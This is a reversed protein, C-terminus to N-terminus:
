KLRWYNGNCVSFKSFFVKKSFIFFIKSFFKKQFFDSKHFVVKRLDFFSSIDYFKWTQLIYLHIRLMLFNDILHFFLRRSNDLKLHSVRYKKFSGNAYINKEKWISYKFCHVIIVKKHIVSMLITFDYIVYTCQYVSASM